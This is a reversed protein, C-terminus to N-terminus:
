TQVGNRTSQAVQAEATGDQKRQTEEQGPLKGQELRKQNEATFPVAPFRITVRTGCDPESEVRLGYAAGFILQIRRNVNLLGVGSGRRHVITSDTLVRAAMEEPMGAGNDEVTLVIDEEEKKGSVLIKGGDEADMDGVGYYIANELIPQLILKVCCFEEIDKETQFEVRFRDRYRMKQINMYSRSHQLEDGIRIITHGGSLSIRLLKALESIMYVAEENRGGEVMWTISDLTNYLFHPNIQSQLADFESRRRESQEEVIQRMLSDIQEYSHQVSRGLHRIEASGGIYIAPKEGAEYAAVSDNLRLIPRSIRGAVIRNVALLMMLTLICQLIAFYQVNIIGYSFSSDPIVGVLKWGTYSISRIVLERKEGQWTERYVGDARAAAAASDEKAYGERILIQKPHWIINGEGDCLYYYQGNENRNIQEMIQSVASYNMDVLLVGLRTTESDTIEVARSLSIVWHYSYTADDFLNQVHPTSFHMNEIEDMADIFWGQRTVDPDAKQSIVPVAALLSGSGDYLAISILHDKHSEYILGMEQELAPDTLDIESVVNFNVADSIRRMSVLYDELNERTQMVVSQASRVTAERSAAYFRNYLILSVAVTLVVSVVTFAAM